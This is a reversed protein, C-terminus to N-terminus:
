FTWKRETGGSGGGGRLRTGSVPRREVMMARSRKFVKRRFGDTRVTRARLTRGPQKRVVRLGAPSTRARSSDSAHTSHDCVFRGRARNTRRSFRQRTQRRPTRTTINHWPTKVYVHAPRIEDVTVTKITYFPLLTKRETYENTKSDCLEYRM